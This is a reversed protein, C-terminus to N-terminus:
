LFEDCWDKLCQFCDTAQKANAGSIDKLWETFLEQNKKLVLFQGLLIYAKDFGKAVLRKGLVEGIGAVDTIPKEGMPESVFSKHKQSTTSM